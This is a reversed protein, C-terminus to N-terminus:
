VMASLVRFTRFIDIRIPSGTAISVHRVCLIARHDETDLIEDLFIKYVAEIVVEKIQRFINGYRLEFTADIGKKALVFDARFM